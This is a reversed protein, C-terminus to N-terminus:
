GSYLSNFGCSKEQGWSCAAIVSLMEYRSLGLSILNQLEPEFTENYKNAGPRM